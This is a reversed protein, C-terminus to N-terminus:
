ELEASDVKCLGGQTKNDTVPFELGQVTTSGHPLPQPISVRLNDQPKARDGHIECLIIVSVPFSNENRFAIELILFKGEHRWTQQTVSLKGIPNESEGAAQAYPLGVLVLLAAGLAAFPSCRM